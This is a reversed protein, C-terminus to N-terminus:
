RAEGALHALVEDLRELWRSSVREDAAFRTLAEADVDLESVAIAGDVERLSATTLDAALLATTNLGCAHPLDPLAAALALGARLGISTELASSVVLPLGLREGLDLCAQVGGLPQVKIVAIDAAGLEAVREPDGARRISEDAAIPVQWGRRALEHRLRALEEVTRCPQEVYELDFRRLENIMTLSQSPTWAGNADLRLRGGPGLADRVAEVRAIDEAMGQSPEAVKVKATRCGSGRVRAHAAEAPEAPVTVNVEVRDRVPDPFGRTAAAEAAQWWRAAEAFGYEEFPSWEVWGLPSRLVMGRRATIGRFRTTMPIEYVVLDEIWEVATVRESGLELASAM